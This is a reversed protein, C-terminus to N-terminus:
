RGAAHGDCRSDSGVAYAGDPLLSLLQAASGHAWDGITKVLHGRQSLVDILYQWRRTEIELTGVGEEITAVSGGSGLHQWRPAEIAEQLNMGGDIVNVLLQPYFVNKPSLKGLEGLLKKGDRMYAYNPEDAGFFRWIPTMAGIPKNALVSITVPFNDPM